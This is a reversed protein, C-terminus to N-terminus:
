CAATRARLVLIIGLSGNSCASLHTCHCLCTMSRLRTLVYCFCPHNPLSPPPNQVQPSSARAPLAPRACWLATCKRCRSSGPQTCTTCKPSCRVTAEAVHCPVFLRTCSIWPLSCQVRRRSLQKLSLAVRKAGQQGALHAASVLYEPQLHLDKHASKPAPQRPLAPRTRACESDDSAAAPESAM